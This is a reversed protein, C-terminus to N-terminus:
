LLKDFKYRMSPIIYKKIKPHLFKVSDVPIYVTYSDRSKHLTPKLEFKIRLVNMFLILEKVTFSQLKILIAKSKFSGDSMIIHALGEYTLLDYLNEPIIKIRGRYFIDRLYTFCPLARTIFELGIFDRRNIRTKVLKPFSICYPSLINFVFFLYDLHDFSQKFRFRSNVNSYINKEMQTAETSKSKRSYNNSLTKKSVFELNGDSLILGILPSLINNPIGIMYSVIRSFKPLNVSSELNSGYIVLSRCDNNEIMYKTNSRNFIKLLNGTHLELNMNLICYNAMLYYNLKFYYNAM